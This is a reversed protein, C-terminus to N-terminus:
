KENKLEQLLNELFVRSDFNLEEERQIYWVGDVNKCAENLFKLGEKEKELKSIFIDTAGGLNINCNYCQIKLNRFDYKYKIPLSAKPKGHGVHRNSGECIRGCTYCINGKNKYIRKIENWVLKHLQTITKKKMSREIKEM